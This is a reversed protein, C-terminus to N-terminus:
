VLCTPLVNGERSQLLFANWMGTSAHKNKRQLYEVAGAEKERKQLIFIIIEGDKGEVM